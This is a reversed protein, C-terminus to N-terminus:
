TPDGGAHRMAAVVADVRLCAPGKAQDLLALMAANCPAANPAALEVITDHYRTKPALGRSLRRWTDNHVPRTRPGAARQRKIEDELSADRGDCSAARIGAHAFASQAERLLTAKIAGFEPRTHDDPAVLANVTSALNACLKLWKDAAIDDSEGVDFGARRLDNALPLETREVVVRGATRTFLAHGPAQLECTIRWVADVARCTAGAIKKGVVGNCFTVVTRGKWRRALDVLDSEHVCALIVGDPEDVVRVQARFSDTDGEVFLDRTAGRGALAVEVGAHALRCALVVGVSGAGFVTYTSM